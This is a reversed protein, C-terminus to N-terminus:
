PRCKRRIDSETTSVVGGAYPMDRNTVIWRGERQTLTYVFSELDGIGPLVATTDGCRITQDPLQINFVVRVLSVTDAVMEPRALFVYFSGPEHPCRNPDCVGAILSDTVLSQLWASDFHPGTATWTELSQLQRDSLWPAQQTTTKVYALVSTWLTGENVQGLSGTANFTTLAGLILVTRSLKVSEGGGGMAVGYHWLRPTADLLFRGFSDPLRPRHPKIAAATWSAGDRM